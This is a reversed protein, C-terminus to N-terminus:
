NACACIVQRGGKEPALRQLYSDLHLFSIADGRLILFHTRIPQFLLLFRKLLPLLRTLLPYIHAIIQIHLSDFSGM